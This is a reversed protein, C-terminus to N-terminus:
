MFGLSLDYEDTLIEFLSQLAMAKNLQGDYQVGGSMYASVLDTTGQTLGLFTSKDMQLTAEPDDIKEAGAKIKGDEIILYMYIDLEPIAIQLRMDEMDELEEKGEESNEILDEMGEFFSPLLVRALPVIKEVDIESMRDMVESIFDKIEEDELVKAFGIEKALSMVKPVNEILQDVEADELSNIIKKLEEM